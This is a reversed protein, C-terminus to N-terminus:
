YFKCKNKQIIPCPLFQEYALAMNLSFKVIKKCKIDFIPCQNSNYIIKTAANTDPQNIIEIRVLYNNLKYHNAKYTNITSVIDRSLDKNYM